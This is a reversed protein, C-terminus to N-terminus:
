SKGVKVLLLNAPNVQESFAKKIEDTTVANIKSVYTDLFDAPLKYFTMRLLLTAISRNNELSLPFSGTLYLKAADLENKNPGDKIFEGLLRETLQIAKNAEANQTSLSILFPGDGPMPSFQSSIGYTLGRKERVEIALRSVLSGGGLIYNGVILPFYNPNHHDIGIQGLRIMTQSSPFKINIQEAKKLQQAKPLAAAHQGPKLGQTIQEAIDHAMSSDVAGVMILVANKAVFYQQYFEIVQQKTIAKVTETTGEVPHGYPHNQYLTKFFNITAVDDPSEQTQEISMLLQKKERSFADDPFDPQSIIKVFTNKAQELASNSNTLTRLTLVVMDKNNEAAFQAGVDAFSEAILNADIGSNGQDLLNTTLTSLGFQSGDYASGAAFALSLDLMPVEMAQYFVVQVGNKTLWQETKFQKAVASQSIAILLAVVAWTIKKM